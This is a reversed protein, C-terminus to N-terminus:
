SGCVLLFNIREGAESCFSLSHPLPLPPALSVPLCLTQLNIFVLLMQECNSIFHARSTNPATHTATYTHSQTFKHICDQPTNTVLCTQTPTVILSKTSMHTPTHTFTPIQSYTLSLLPTHNVTSSEKYTSVDTHILIATDARMVMFVTVIHTDNHLYSNRRTHFQM